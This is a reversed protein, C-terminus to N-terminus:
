RRFWSKGSRRKPEEPEPDDDNQTFMETNILSAKPLTDGSEGSLLSKKYLRRSTAADVEESKNKESQRDPQKESKAKRTTTRVEFTKELDPKGKQKAGPAPDVAEESSGARSRLRELRSLPSRRKKEENEDRKRLPAEKQEPMDDRIIIEQDEDPLTKEGEKPRERPIHTRQKKRKERELTARRVKEVSIKMEDGSLTGEPFLKELEEVEKKRKNAVVISVAIVPILIVGILIGGYLLPEEMFWDM